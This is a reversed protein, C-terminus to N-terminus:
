LPRVLGAPSRRFRIATVAHGDEHGGGTGTGQLQRSLDGVSGQHQHSVGGPYHTLGQLMQFGTGPAAATGQVVQVDHEGDPGADGAGGLFGAPQGAWHRHVPSEHPAAGVPERM